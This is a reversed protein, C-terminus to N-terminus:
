FLPTQTPTAGTTMSKLAPYAERLTEPVESVLGILTHQLELANAVAQGRFHNNLVAFINNAKAKRSTVLDAYPRCSKRLYVVQGHM